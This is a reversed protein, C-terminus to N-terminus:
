ALVYLGKPRGELGANRPPLKGAVAVVARRRGKTRILRMGWTKIHSGAMTGMLLANAAAYLTARVDRDAAKSIRSCSSGPRWFRFWHM